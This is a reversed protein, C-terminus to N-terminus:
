SYKASTM